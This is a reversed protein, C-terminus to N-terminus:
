VKSTAGRFEGTRHDHDRCRTEGKKFCGNCISCTTASWFKRTNEKSMKLQENKRMEVICKNSLDTLEIVMDEICSDGEFTKLVNKSSDFTCVFYYCCSNINHKHTLQTNEGLKQNLKELTSECDAYIIYPRELKNKHNKFKMTSGAEPLKVLSGEGSARRYCDRLHNDFFDKVAVNKTCYPCFQKHQDPKTYNNLNLLREIHKIYIYHSQDESELRLLYVIDNKTPVKIHNSSQVM